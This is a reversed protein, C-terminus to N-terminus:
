KQEVKKPGTKKAPIKKVKKVTKLEKAEKPATVKLNKKTTANKKNKMPEGNQIKDLPLASEEPTIVKTAVRKKKKAPEDVVTENETEDLPLVSEDKDEVLPIVDIQSGQELKEPDANKLTPKVKQKRKRKKDTLEDSKVADLNKNAIPSAQYLPLAVSTATKLYMSKINDWNGPMKKGVVRM